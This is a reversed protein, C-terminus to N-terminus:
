AYGSAGGGEGKVERPVVEEFDIIGGVEKASARM